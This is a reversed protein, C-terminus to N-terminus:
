RADNESMRSGGCGEFSPRQRRRTMEWGARCLTVVQSLPTKSGGESDSDTTKWAQVVGEEATGEHQGRIRQVRRDTNPDINAGQRGEGFDRRGSQNGSIARDIQRPAKSALM